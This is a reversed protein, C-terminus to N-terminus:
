PKEHGASRGGESGGGGGPRAAHPDAGVRRGHGTGAIPITWCFAAGQSTQTDLWIRGGHHEVIKRCLALGIGTGEYDERTHLRQFIVFIREAHRPDIGIGNDACRFVWEPGDPGHEDRRVTLSVYPPRDPARFKIANGILNQFLQGLLVRDGVVTPLADAEVVAGSEERAAALAFMARDLVDDLSVETPEGGMRGVRSFALLDNILAQMRRAGDVAIAIYEDAREDLQGAYRRSLLQCFSAVKRLPEQLDHSAVYAFQELEANSRRLEAAQQDLQERAEDASHYSAVISRRMLDVDESLELVEIPGPVMVRRAYDGQSVARVQTGLERIPLVVKRRVALLLSWLVAVLVVGILGFLGWMAHTATDLDARARAREEDLHRQQTAIADRVDDFLAQGFYARADAAGPGGTRVAAVAPEAYEDRWNREAEVVAALDEALQGWERGEVTTRSLIGVAVRSEQQGLAYPQLFESDATSLYGRVGTEQNLLAGELQRSATIAPQLRDMVDDRLVTVRYIAWGGLSLAVVLTVALIVFGGAVLTRLRGPHWPGYRSPPVTRRRRRPLRATAARGPVGGGARDGGVGGSGVGGGSAGGSGVGGRGTGDADPERTAGAPSAPTGADGGREARGLLRGGRGIWRFRGGSNTARTRGPGGTPAAASVGGRAGAGDGTAADPSSAAPDPRGTTHEGDGPGTTATGGSM